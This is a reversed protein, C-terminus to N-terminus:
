TDPSAFTLRLEEPNKQQAAAAALGRRSLVAMRSLSRALMRDFSGTILAQVDFWNPKIPARFHVPGRATNPSHIAALFTTIGFAKNSFERIRQM